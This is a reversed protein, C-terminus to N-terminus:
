HDHRDHTDPGVAADPIQPMRPVRGTAPDQVLPMRRRSTGYRVDQGRIRWTTPGVSDAYVRLCRATYQVLGDMHLQRGM